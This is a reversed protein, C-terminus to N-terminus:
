GGGRMLWGLMLLGLAAMWSGAVRVAIRMWAAALSVLAASLLLVVLSVAAASGLVAVWGQGASGLAAGDVLGALGGYALALCGVLGPALEADLAVLGGLVVLSVASWWPPSVDLSLGIAVLGGLFWAVPLAVVALRGARRGVLAALLTLTVLGLLELPSILLHLVGDYFPGMGSSALHAHAAAPVNSLVALSGVIRLRRDLCRQRPPRM